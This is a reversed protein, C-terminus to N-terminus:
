GLANIGGKDVLAAEVDKYLGFLREISKEATAVREILSAVLSRLLFIVRSVSWPVNAYCRKCFAVPVEMKELESSRLLVVKDCCLCPMTCDLESM